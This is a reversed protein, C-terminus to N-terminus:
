LDKKYDIRKIDEMTIGSVIRYTDISEKPVLKWLENNWIVKDGDIIIDYEETAKEIELIFLQAHKRFTGIIRYKESKESVALDDVSSKIVWIKM